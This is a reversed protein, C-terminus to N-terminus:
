EFHVKRVQCGSLEGDSSRRCDGLRYSNGKQVAFVLQGPRLDYDQIMAGACGHVAVTLLSIAAGRAAWFRVGLAFSSARGFTRM